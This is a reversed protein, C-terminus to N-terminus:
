SAIIIIHNYIQIPSLKFNNYISVINLFIDVRLNLVSVEPM